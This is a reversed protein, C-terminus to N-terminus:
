LTLNLDNNIVEKFYQKYVDTIGGSWAFCEVALNKDACSEIGALRTANQEARYRVAIMNKKVDSYDPATM